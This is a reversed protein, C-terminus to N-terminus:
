AKPLSKQLKWLRELKQQRAEVLEVLEPDNIIDEVTALASRGYMENLLEQQAEIEVTLADIELKLDSMEQELTLTM